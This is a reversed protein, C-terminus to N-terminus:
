QAYAQVEVALQGSRCVLQSSPPQAMLTQPTAAAAPVFPVKSPVHLEAAAASPVQKGISAEASVSPPGACYPTQRWPPLMVLSVAAHERSTDQAAFSRQPGVQNQLVVEVEVVTVMPFQTCSQSGVVRVPQAVPLVQSACDVSTPTQWGLVLPPLVPPPVVPPPVEPPPVEPPEVDPPVVPPVPVIEVASMHVTHVVSLLQLM